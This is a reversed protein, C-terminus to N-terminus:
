DEPAVHGRKPKHTRAKRGPMTASHERKIREFFSMNVRKGLADAIRHLHELRRDREAAPRSVISRIAADLAKLYDITPKGDPGTVLLGAARFQEYSRSVTRKIVGAERAVASMSMLLTKGPPLVRFLVSLVNRSAGLAWPQWIMHLLEWRQLVSLDESAAPRASM